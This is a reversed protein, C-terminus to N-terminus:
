EHEDVRFRASTLPGFNHALTLVQQVRPLDVVQAFATRLGTKLHIAFYRVHSNDNAAAVAGDTPNEVGEVFRREHMLRADANNREACAVIERPTKTPAAAVLALGHPFNEIFDASGVQGHQITPTDAHGVDVFTVLVLVRIRRGVRATRGRPVFFVAVDGEVNDVVVKRDADVRGNTALKM